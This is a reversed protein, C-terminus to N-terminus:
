ASDRGAYPLRPDRLRVEERIPEVEAPPTVVTIGEVQSCDLSDADAVVTFGGIIWVLPSGHFPTKFVDFHLGPEVATPQGLDDPLPPFFKNARVVTASPGARLAVTM